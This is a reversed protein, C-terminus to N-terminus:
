LVPQEQSKNGKNQYGNEQNGSFLGCSLNGMVLCMEPRVLHQVFGAALPFRFTIAFLAVIRGSNWQRFIVGGLAAAKEAVFHFPCTWSSM